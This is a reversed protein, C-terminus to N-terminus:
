RPAPAATRVSLHKIIQTNVPVVNLREGRRALHAHRSSAKIATGHTGRAALAASYPMATMASVVRIGPNWLSPLALMLLLPVTDNMPLRTTPNVERV